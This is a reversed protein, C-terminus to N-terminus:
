WCSKQDPTSTYESPPIYEGGTLPIEFDQVFVMNSSDFAIGISLYRNAPNLINTRHGWNSSADDNMMQNDMNSIFQTLDSSDTGGGAVNESILYGSLGAEFYRGQPTDGNDSIHHICRESLLQLAWQQTPQENDLEVPSLGAQSRYNNIDNLMFQRLTDLDSNQPNAQNTQQATGQNSSQSQTNTVGLRQNYNQIAAKEQAQEAAQRQQEEQALLTAEQRAKLQASNTTEEEQQALTQQNPQTPQISPNSQIQQNSSNNTQMLKSSINNSANNLVMDLNSLNSLPEKYNEYFYLGAITIGIGLVIGLAINRGSHKKYYRRGSHRKVGSYRNDYKGNKWNRWDDDM